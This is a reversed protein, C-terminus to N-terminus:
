YGLYKIYECAVLLFAGVGFNATSRGTLKQGKIAKSGIPQVYGITGDPQLAKETLYKWANRVVPGYYSEDLINNNIGWLLGYTFFATGSTEEGMSQKEDMLSRFWYGEHHQLKAVTQCMKKYKKLFYDYHTCDPSLDELVKALAALVWGNGRSWFDKKGTITTHKPYVFNADRYYLGEVTDYMLNNSFKYYEFLKDLYTYNGTLRYYKTMVPMVMFLGDSWWWYYDHPTSMQYEMVELARKIKVSDPDLSYLDAYVQFCAQWDGFLVYEDSEGYRYKWKSKDNGKAGKWHNYEAWTLSYDYWAENGTLQYAAMNGIHYVANDWFARNQPKHNKQWATNVKDIIKLTKKIEEANKQALESHYYWVIKDQYKKGDKEAIAEIVNEGDNLQIEESIFVCDGHSELLYNKRNVNLFLRECNSYVKICVNRRSQYVNRRECIYVMPSPNWNAKYFYYADKKIRRDHTMLGKDNIGPQLGENRKDAAFDYAAWVSTSWLYPREKIVRWHVEHFNTQINEPHWQGTTAPKRLGDQYQFPHAGAGYESIGICSKPYKAHLKDLVDGIDEPKGYYWGYYPNISYADPVFNTPKEHFMAALVTPRTPDEAHVVENMHKILPLPDPGKHFNIENSLGWVIISPHNYLQRILSKTAVECNKTFEDTDIIENILPTEAWCVIGLTDLYNYTFDGHQYHSLRIYNAGMEAIRDIDAKRDIDSLANGKDILEEHMCVGRLPYSRGNLFFGKDPDISYYRIGLPQIEADVERNGVFVAVNVSYLYPDKVGDWLHPNKLHFNQIVPLTEASNLFVKKDESLVVNGLRDKVSFRVFANQNNSNANKIKATITIDASDNSVNKQCIYIGRSGYDESTIHLKDKKILEVNRILGGFFTFDASIPALPFGIANSVKVALRNQKGFHIASTMDFAFATYGGIHTGVLQDNLYVETVYNSAGFRIYIQKKRDSKDFYLDKTYWGIGRYYDGGGDQGDLANWSHPLNISQADTRDHIHVDSSGRCFKWNENILIRQAYISIGTIYFLLFFLYKM